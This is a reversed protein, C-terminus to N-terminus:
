PNDPVPADPTRAVLAAASVLDWGPAFQNTPELKDKHGEYLDLLHSVSRLVQIHRYHDPAKLAHRTVSMSNGM